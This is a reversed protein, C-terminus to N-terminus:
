DQSTLTIRPLNRLRPEENGMQLTSMIITGKGESCHTTTYFNSSISCPPCAARPLSYRLDRLSNSLVTGTCPLCKSNYRANFTETNLSGLICLCRHFHAFGKGAWLTRNPNVHCLDCLNRSRMNVGLISDLGANLSHSCSWEPHLM